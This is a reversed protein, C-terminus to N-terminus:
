LGESPHPGPFAEIAALIHPALSKLRQAVTALAHPELKALVNRGIFGVETETIAIQEHIVTRLGPALLSLFQEVTALEATGAYRRALEATIEHPPVSTLDVAM